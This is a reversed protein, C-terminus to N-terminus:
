VTSCHVKYYVRVTYICIMLSGKGRAVCVCVGQHLSSEMLPKFPELIHTPSSTVVSVLASRFKVINKTYDALESHLLDFDLQEATM